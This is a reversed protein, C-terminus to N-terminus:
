ASEKRRRLPAVNIPLEEQVPAARRAAEVKAIAAALRGAVRMMREPDDGFAGIGRNCAECALGRVCRGCSRIGRCCSHDHDVHVNKPNALDLPEACLYCCGDQGAILGSYAEPSLGYLFKVRSAKQTKRVREPHNEKYKRTSERGWAQNRERLGEPSLM